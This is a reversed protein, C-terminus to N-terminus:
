TQCWNVNLLHSWELSVFLLAPELSPLPRHRPCCHYMVFAIPDRLLQRPSSGFTVSGLCISRYLVFLISVLLWTVCWSAMFGEQWRGWGLHINPTTPIQEEVNKFCLKSCFCQSGDMERGQFPLVESCWLARIRGSKAGTLSIQGIQGYFVSLWLCLVWSPWFQCCGPWPWCFYVFLSVEKTLPCMKCRLLFTHFDGKNRFSMEIWRLMDWCNLLKRSAKSEWVDLYSWRPGVDGLRRRSRVAM